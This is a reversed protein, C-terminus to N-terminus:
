HLELHEETSTVVLKPIIQLVFNAIRIIQLPSVNKTSLIKNWLIESLRICREEIKIMFDSSSQPRKAGEHLESIKLLSYFFYRM